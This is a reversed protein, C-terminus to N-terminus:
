LRRAPAEQQPYGAPDDAPLEGSTAM